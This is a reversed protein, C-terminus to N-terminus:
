YLGTEYYFVPLDSSFDIGDSVFARGCSVTKSLTPKFLIKINKILEIFLFRRYIYSVVVYIKQTIEIVYLKCNVFSLM